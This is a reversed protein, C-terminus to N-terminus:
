QQRTSGSSTELCSAACSSPTLTRVRSCKIERPSIGVRLIPLRTKIQREARSDNEVVSLGVSFWRSSTGTYVGIPELGQGAPAPLGNSLHRTPVLVNNV